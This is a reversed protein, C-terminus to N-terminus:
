IFSNITKQKPKQLQKSIKAMNSICKNSSLLQQRHLCVVAIIKLLLVYVLYIDIYLISNESLIEWKDDVDVANSRDILNGRM